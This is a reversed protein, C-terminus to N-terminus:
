VRDFSQDPYPLSRMDGEVFRIAVNQRRAAERALKIMASSIDIGAMAYGAKAFPITVRGYGCCLDLNLGTKSLMRKIQPLVKHTRIYETELAQLGKPGGINSYFKKVYRDSMNM